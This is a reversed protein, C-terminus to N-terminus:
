VGLLAPWTQDPGVEGDVDIHCAAQLVRVAGDTTKGFNGDIGDKRLGTVGLDHGAAVLLGQARRVDPGTDGQKLTPLDRMIQETRTSGTSVPLAGFFDGLLLSQDLVRGMANPTWQTGDAPVRLAKCSAPGCVHEGDYHATWLRVSALAIGASSLVPLVQGDMASASAYIVPRAIGRKAQRAHWGPIDAPSAAGAEVDLADADHDAFLAISLHSAGPFASVIWAYNPQNGIGGDVYGAYADAGPPFQNNFAGDFMVIGTV